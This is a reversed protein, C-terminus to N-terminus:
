LRQVRRRCALGIAGWAVLVAVTPEPIPTVSGVGEGYIARVGDIEDQSLLGTGPGMRRLAARYM